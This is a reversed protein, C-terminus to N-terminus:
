KKVLMAGVVDGVLFGVIAALIGLFAFRFGTMFWSEEVLRSAYAGLAFLIIMGLAFSMAIAPMLQLLFFPIILVVLVFLTGLFSFVANMVVEKKSHIQTEKGNKKDNTQIGREMEQSTYFGVANGFSNAIGGVIGAIIVTNADNTAAAVGILIGLFCIVGDTLGFAMGELEKMVDM